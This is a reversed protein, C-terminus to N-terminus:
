KTAIQLQVVILHKVRYKEFWKDPPIGDSTLACYFQYGPWKPDEYPLSYVFLPVAKNTPIKKFTENTVLGDRLSYSNTNIRAYKRVIGVGAFNFHFAVSDNLPKTILTLISISDNIGLKFSEKAYKSPLLTDTKTLKGCLYENTTLLLYGNTLKQNKFNVKYIDIHELDMLLQVDSIKSGYVSKAEVSDINQAIGSQNLSIFIIITLLYALNM